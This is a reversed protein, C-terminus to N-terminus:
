HSRVLPASARMAPWRSRWAAASPWPRWLRWRRNPGARWCRASTTMSGASGTLLCTLCARCVRAQMYTHVCSCYFPSLYPCSTCRSDIGGGGSKAFQNIDFGASFRGKAGTVVIAKVDQRSHAERLCNFLANLVALFLMSCSSPCM